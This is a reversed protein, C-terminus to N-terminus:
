LVFNNYAREDAGHAILTMVTSTRINESGRWMNTNHRKGGKEKVVQSFRTHEKEMMELLTHGDKELNRMACPLENNLKSM